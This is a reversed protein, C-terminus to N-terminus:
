RMSGIRLLINNIIYETFLQKQEQTPLQRSQLLIIFVTVLRYVSIVFITLMSFIKSPVVSTTLETVLCLSMSCHKCQGGGGVAGSIGHYSQRRRLFTHWRPKEASRTFMMVNPDHHPPPGAAAIVILGWGGHKIVTIPWHRLRWGRAPWRGQVRCNVVFM